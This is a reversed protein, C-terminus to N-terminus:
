GCECESFTIKYFNHKSLINLFQIEGNEDIYSAVDPLYVIPCFCNFEESFIGNLIGYSNYKKYYKIFTDYDLEDLAKTITERDEKNMMHHYWFYDVKVPKDKFTEDIIKILEEDSSIKCVVESYFDELNYPCGSKRVGYIRAIDDNIERGPNVYNVGDCYNINENKSFDVNDISEEIFIVEDYNSIHRFDKKNLLDVLKKNM